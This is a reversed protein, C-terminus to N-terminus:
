RNQICLPLGGELQAETIIGPFHFELRVLFLDPDHILKWVGNKNFASGPQRSNTKFLFEGDILLIEVNQFLPLVIKVTYNGSVLSKFFEMRLYLTRSYMSMRVKAIM